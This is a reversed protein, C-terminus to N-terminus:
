QYQNSKHELVQQASNLSKLNLEQILNKSKTLLQHAQITENSKLLNRAVEHHQMVVFRGLRKVQPHLHNRIKIQRAYFLVGNKESFNQRDLARNAREILDDLSLAPAPAVPKKPLIPLTAAEVNATYYVTEHAKPQTIPVAKTLAQNSIPTPSGTPTEKTTHLTKPAPNTKKDKLTLDVNTQQPSLIDELELQSTAALKNDTKAVTDPATSSSGSNLKVLNLELSPLPEQLALPLALMETEVLHDQKAAEAEDLLSQPSSLTASVPLSALQNSSHNRYEVAFTSFAIVMISSLALTHKLTSRKYISLGTHHARLAHLPQILATALLYLKQNPLSILFASDLKEPLYNQKFLGGFQQMLQKLSPLQQTPLSMVSHAGLGEPSALVFYQRDQTEGQALIPLLWDQNLTQALQQAETASLELQPLRCHSPLLHILIRSPTNETQALELDRGRYVEGIGSVALCELLAYREDLIKYGMGSTNM